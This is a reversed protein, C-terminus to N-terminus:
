KVLSLVHRVAESINSYVGLTKASTEASPSKLDPVLISPIGAEVAAQIGYESDEIVVCNQPAIGLRRAALQFLDPSPKGREVEDGGSVEEFFDRIKASVLRAHADVRSTSTAVVMPMERERVLRLSEVVGPRLPWGTSATFDVVIGKVRPFIEEWPFNPHVNDLMIQRCDRYNRGVMRLYIQDAVEFGLELSTKLFADRILRESDILVGDMDFIIAQVNEM